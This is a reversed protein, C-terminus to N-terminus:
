KILFNNRSTASTTSKKNTIVAAWLDEINDAIQAPQCQTLSLCFAFTFLRRRM